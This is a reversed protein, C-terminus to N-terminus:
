EDINEYTSIIKSHRNFSTLEPDELEVMKAVCKCKKLMVFYSLIIIRKIYSFYIPSPLESSAWLWVALLDHLQDLLIAVKKCHFYFSDQLSIWIEYNIEIFCSIYLVVVGEPCFSKLILNISPFGFGLNSLCHWQPRIREYMTDSFSTFELKIGPNHVKSIYWIEEAM